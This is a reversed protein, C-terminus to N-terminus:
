VVSHRGIGIKPEMEVRSAMDKFDFVDLRLIVQTWVVVRTFEDFGHPPHCVGGENAIATGHFSPRLIGYFKKGM